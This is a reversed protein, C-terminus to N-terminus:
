FGMFEALASVVLIIWWLLLASLFLLGLITM